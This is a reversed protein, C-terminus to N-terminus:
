IAQVYVVNYGANRLFNEMIAKAKNDAKILINQQLARDIMKQRAKLKVDTVENANWVGKEEFTEFDGPNIIADLIEAHPLNLTITDNRIVINEDRLKQLNTGALVKGNGILVIQKQLSPLVPLPTFSNFADTFAAAKNYVLSDVVVEDYSTVTILQAITKIQKILIPTQDIVVPKSTFLDNFSPLFNIKRLLWIGIVIALTLLIIKKISLARM